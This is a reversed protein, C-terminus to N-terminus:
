NLTIYKILIKNYMHLQLPGAAKLIDLKIVKLVVKSIIRRMVEGVGIPRVGPCKNLAILWCAVLASIGGPDVYTTCLRRAM